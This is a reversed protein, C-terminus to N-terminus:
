VTVLTASTSESVKDHVYDSLKYEVNRPKGLIESRIMRVLKELEDDDCM